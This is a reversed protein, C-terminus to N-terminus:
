EADSAVVTTEATDKNVTCFAKSRDGNEAKIKMEYTMIDGSISLSGEDVRASKPAPELQEKAGDRCLIKAKRISVEASAAQVSALAGVTVLGIMLGNIKM